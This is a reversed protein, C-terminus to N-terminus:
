MEGSDRVAQSPRRRGHDAHFLLEDGGRQASGVGASVRRAGGSGAPRSERAQAPLEPLVPDAVVWGSVTLLLARLPLQDAKM